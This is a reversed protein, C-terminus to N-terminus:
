LYMLKIKDLKDKLRDEPLFVIIVAQHAIHIHEFTEVYQIVTTSVVEIGSDELLLLLSELSIGRAKDKSYGIIQRM